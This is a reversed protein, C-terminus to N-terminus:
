SRIVKFTNHRDFVWKHLAERPPAVYVGNPHLLVALDGVDKVYILPTGIPIHVEHAFGDETYEKNGDKNTRILSWHNNRKYIYVIVDGPKLPDDNKITKRM